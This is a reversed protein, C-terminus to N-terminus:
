ALEVGPVPRVPHVGEFGKGELGVGVVEVEVGLDDDLQVVGSPADDLHGDRGVVAVLDAVDVPDLVGLVHHGVDHAVPQLFPTQTGAGGGAHARVVVELRTGVAGVAADEGPQGLLPGPPHEVQPARPALDGFPEPGESVVHDADVGHLRGAHALADVPEHGGVEVGADGVGDAGAEVHDHAGVHDLVGAGGLGQQGVGAPAQARAAHQQGADGVEGVPVWAHPDGGSGEVVVLPADEVGGM